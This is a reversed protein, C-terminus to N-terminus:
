PLAPEFIRGDFFRDPGLIMTGRESSVATPHSLTGEVKMSAGPLDAGAQRLHLRYLDSRMVGAGAIAAPAEPLDHRAALFAAVLVGISKWPFSAAGDHFTAFRMGPAALAFGIADTLAPETLDTPLNLYEPRSLIEAAMARNGASDLWRGARWVARMLAGAAQPDAEAWGQRAALVKEPAAAWIARGPMLLRGVGEAVAVSGWPEGVCFLDIEGARLAEAMLPPPVTRIQLPTGLWRAMLLAHTSFAFPVGVRPVAPGLARIARAAQVPDRLPPLRAALDAAAGIAQGGQSLIMLVEVPPLTPGLGMARAVAMPLLMHAAEVAGAALLDRLQAWSRAQVLDLALGEEAAFGLEAAIVLPAADTLPVYAARLLTGSM